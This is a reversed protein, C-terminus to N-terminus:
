GINRGIMEELLNVRGGKYEDVLEGDSFFFFAPVARVGLEQALDAAKDIDFRVFRVEGKGEGEKEGEKKEREGEAEGEKRNQYESSLRDVHPAIADCPECWAASAQVVVKSPTSANLTQLLEQLSTIETIPM